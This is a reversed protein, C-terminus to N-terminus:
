SDSHASHHWQLLRTVHSDLYSSLKQFIQRSLRWHKQMKVVVEANEVITEIFYANPLGNIFYDAEDRGEEFYTSVYKSSATM